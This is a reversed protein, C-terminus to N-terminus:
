SEYVCHRRCFGGGNRTTDPLGSAYRIVHEGDYTTEVSSTRPKSVGRCLASCEADHGNDDQQDQAAQLAVDHPCGDRDGLFEGTKQEEATGEERECVPKGFVPM